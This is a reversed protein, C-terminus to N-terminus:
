QGEQALRVALCYAEELRKFNKPWDAREEALIRAAKGMSELPTGARCASLIVQALTGEDGVPFLWGQNGPTIWERNGPIDSVLAPKGCSLAEMLSVSSGDSRSASLYLDSARYYNPLELNGVQGGFFVRELLGNNMLLRRLEPAQSGGGLLILRLRPEQTAARIFGKVVVDVGYLPEWSRLSLLIFADQWGLRARLGGGDGPSFRELDVGWPFLVVKEESFGLRVAKQQVAQCDGVLVTTRRLAYRALWRMTRSKEADLLLDSGWSMTVLPRFGVLAALFAASQVPGAHIVDPKLRRIVSKLSVALGPYDLRHVPKLGGKWSVLEVEPPLAREELLRDDRELRLFFVQHGSGALSSLFRHDHPSYSRSFYLVRM